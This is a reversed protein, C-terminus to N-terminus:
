PLEVTDQAPVTGDDRGLGVVEGGVVAVVERGVVAVAQVPVRGIVLEERVVGDEGVVVVRGDQTGLVLTDGAASLATTATGTDLTWAPRGTAAEHTRVVGDGGVHAVLPGVVVPGTVLGSGLPVRWRPAADQASVAVLNTGARDAGVLVDGSRVASMAVARAVAGVPGDVDRRVALTRADVVVLRADEDDVALVGQAAVSLAAFGDLTTAGGTAPDVLVLRSGSGGTVRLVLLGDSIGVVVPLSAAVDGVPQIRVQVGPGDGVVVVLRDDRVADVLLPGGDPLLGVFRLDDDTTVDGTLVARSPRLAGDRVRVWRLGRLDRADQQALAVHGDLAAVLVPGPTPDGAGEHVVTGDRRDVVAVAEVGDPRVVRAVVHDGVLAVERVGVLPSGV